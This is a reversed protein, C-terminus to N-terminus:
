ASDLTIGRRVRQRTDIRSSVHGENGLSDHLATYNGLRTNTFHTHSSTNYPTNLPRLFLTYMRRQYPLSAIEYLTDYLCTYAPFIVKDKIYRVVWKQQQQQQRQQQHPRPKGSHSPTDTDNATAAILAIGGMQPLFRRGQHM